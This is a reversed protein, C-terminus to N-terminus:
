EKIYYFSFLPSKFLSGADFPLCVLDRGFVNYEAAMYLIANNM